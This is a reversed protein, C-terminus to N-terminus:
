GRAAVIAQALQMGAELSRAEDSKYFFCPEGFSNRCEGDITGSVRVAVPLRSKYGYDQVEIKYTGSRAKIYRKGQKVITM